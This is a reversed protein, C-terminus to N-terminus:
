IIGKVDSGGRDGGDKPARGGPACGGSGGFALMLQGPAHGNGTLAWRFGEIVGAIPNLEHLWRWEEPVLSSPYAMPSALMWFQVLFPLVYGLAARRNL